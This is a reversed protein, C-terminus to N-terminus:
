LFYGVEVCFGFSGTADTRQHWECCYLLLQNLEASGGPHLQLSRLAGLLLAQAASWGGGASVLMLRQAASHERM